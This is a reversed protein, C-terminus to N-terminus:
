IADKGIILRASATGEKTGSAGGLEGAISAIKITDKLDAIVLDVKNLLDAKVLIQTQTYNDKDANGTKVVPYGLAKIKDAVKKAEGTVGTGNLVEFSWDSRNLIPAPSETPSPIPTPATVSASPRLRSLPHFMKNLFFGGGFLIVLLIIMLFITKGKSRGPSRPEYKLESDQNIIFSRKIPSAEEQVEPEDSDIPEEPKEGREEETQDM